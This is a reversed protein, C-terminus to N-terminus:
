SWSTVHATSRAGGLGLFDRWAGHLGDVFESNGVTANLGRKCQILQLWTGSVDRLQCYIDDTHAGVYRAEFRLLEVRSGHSSFATPLGTLMNVLYLAGVRAQFVGGGGGTAITSMVQTGKLPDRYTEDKKSM